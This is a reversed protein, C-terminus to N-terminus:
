ELIRSRMLIRSLNPANERICQEGQGEDDM